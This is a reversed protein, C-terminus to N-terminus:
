IIRSWLKSNHLQPWSYIFVCPRMGFNNTPFLIVFTVKSCQIQLAHWYIASATVLHSDSDNQFFTICCVCISHSVCSPLHFCFHGLFLSLCFPELPVPYPLRIHWKVRHSCNLIKKSQEKASIWVFIQVGIDLGDNNVTSLLQSFAVQREISSCTFSNYTLCSFIFDGKGHCLERSHLLNWAM